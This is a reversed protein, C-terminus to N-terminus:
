SQIIWFIQFAACVTIVATTNRCPAPTSNMKAGHLFNYGSSAAKKVFNVVLDKAMTIPNVNTEVLTQGWKDQEMDADTDGGSGDSSSSLEAATAFGGSGDLQRQNDAADAEDDDVSDVYEEVMSTGFVRFVTIPCYHEKGYHELMEVRVFKFFGSVSSPVSFNQMTRAEKVDFKGFDTWERSPFRVSGFVQFVFFSTLIATLRSM